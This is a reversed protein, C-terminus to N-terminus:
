CPSMTDVDGFGGQFGLSPWFHITKITPHDFIGLKSTQHDFGFKASLEITLFPSRGIFFVHRVEPCV